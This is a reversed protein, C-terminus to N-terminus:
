TAIVPIMKASIRRACKARIMASPVAKSLSGVIMRVDASASPNAIQDATSSNM